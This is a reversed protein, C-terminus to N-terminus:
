KKPGVQPGTNPGNPHNSANPNNGANPGDPRNPNTNM